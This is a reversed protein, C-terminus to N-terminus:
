EKTEPTNIQNEEIANLSNGDFVGTKQSQNSDFWKAVLINEDIPNYQQVTMIPGGSKLQVLDGSKFRGM